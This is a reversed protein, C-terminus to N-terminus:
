EPLRQSHLFWKELCKEHPTARPQNVPLVIEETPTKYTIRGSWAMVATNDKDLFLSRGVIAKPHRLGFADILTPLIDIQSCLIDRRLRAFPNSNRDKAIFICPILDNELNNSGILYKYEEGSFPSHDATLIILTDDTFLNHRALGLFFYKLAQDADYLSRLLRSNTNQIYAPFQNEPTAYYFPPHTNMTNIVFFTKEERHEFLLKLAYNFLSQDSVGWGCEMIPTASKIDEYSYYHEFRWLHRALRSIVGYQRSVGSLAHTQYGKEQLLVPLSDVRGAAHNLDAYVCNTSVSVRSALFAHMGSDTPASSTYCRDLRPYNELLSGWFPMLTEFLTSNYFPLMRQGMSEAFILIIRKYQPEKALAGAYREGLLGIRKLYASESFTYPDPEPISPPSFRIAVVQRVVRFFNALSSLQLVGVKEKAVYLIHVNTAERGISSLNSFDIEALSTKTFVLYAGACVACAVASVAFWLVPEFFSWLFTGYATVLVVVGLLLFKQKRTLGVWINTPKLEM